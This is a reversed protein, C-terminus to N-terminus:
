RIITTDQGESKPASLIAKRLSQIARQHLRTAWSRSWGKQRAIDALRMGEFYVLRILEKENEPLRKLAEYIKHRYYKIEATKEKMVKRYQLVDLSLVFVTELIEMCDVVVEGSTREVGDEEIGNFYAEVVEDMHQRLMLDEVNKKPLWSMKRVGDLIAGRIRYYAYTTFKSGEKPKYTRQAELLGQFGYGVLDELSIHKGVKKWISIAINRVLAEHTVSDDHKNGSNENWSM